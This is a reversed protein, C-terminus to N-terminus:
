GDEDGTVETLVSSDVSIHEDSYFDSPNYAALETLANNVEAKLIKQIDVRSKGELKRALKSPLAEMKSRFKTFMDTMVAEVDESKHVQGKILQLKIETIQRKVHEHYAREQELDLDGKEEDVIKGKGAAAIKLNLIYNKASEFLLYRGHSNRKVIGEDALHRIMRDKVGFLNELVKSSVIVSQLEEEKKSM